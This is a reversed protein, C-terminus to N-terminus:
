SRAVFHPRHLWRGGTGRGDRRVVCSACLTRRVWSPRDATVIVLVVSSWWLGPATTRVVAVLRAAAKSARVSAAHLPSPSESPDAAPGFVAVDACGEPPGAVPAGVPGAVPDDVAPVTGTPLDGEPAAVAEGALGAAGFAGAGAFGAAEAVAAPPLPHSWLIGM